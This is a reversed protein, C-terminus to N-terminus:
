SLCFRLRGVENEDDLVRIVCEKLSEPVNFMLTEDEWSPPNKTDKDKQKHTRLIEEGM